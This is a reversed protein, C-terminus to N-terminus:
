GEQPKLDLAGVDRARPRVLGTGTPLVRTKERRGQYLEQPWRVGPPLIRKPVHWKLCQVGSPVVM